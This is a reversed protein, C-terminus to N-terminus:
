LHKCCTRYLAAWTAPAAARHHHEACWQHQVRSAEVHRLSSPGCQSLGSSQHFILVMIMIETRGLVAALEEDQRRDKTVAKRKSPPSNWRDSPTPAWWSRRTNNWYFWHLIGSGHRSLPRALSISRWSSLMWVMCVILAVSKGFKLFCRWFCWSIINFFYFLLVTFCNTFFCM